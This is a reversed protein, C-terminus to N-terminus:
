TIRTGRMFVAAPHDLVAPDDRPDDHYSVLDAPGGDALAAFGLFQRAATSAAALAAAPPLGLEALLAVERPISGDVDTGTMITLGRGAARSLLFGLREGRELRQKRRAPDEGPRPGITACLTPTWAGGRAALSVLDAEDLATGHEVSDIGAAILETVYRTTSHAAVRAGAGHVAEVLRRIDALPYTPSPDSPPEGPRLVPFDAIVKIWTAGATVEALAAAVLDEPPVPVHLGPYYRGEPALFRGCVQLGAGQDALLQLTASGPSGTDRIATIGAAHAQRVNARMAQPDLAVPEGGDARAVSLHCHADVLGPLIFRGPLTEAGAAPRSTWQGRATIGAEVAGGAPLLVANVRWATVLRSYRHRARLGIVQGPRAADPEDRQVRPPLM